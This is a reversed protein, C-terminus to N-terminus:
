EGRVEKLMEALKHDVLGHVRDIAKSTSGEDIDRVYDEVEIVQEWINYDGLNFKGGLRVVVRRRDDRRDDSM